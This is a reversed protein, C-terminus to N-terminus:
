LKCCEQAFDLPTKSSTFELSLTGRSASHGLLLSLVRAMKDKPM